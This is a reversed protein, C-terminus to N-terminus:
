STVSQLKEERDIGTGSQYRQDGKEEKKAEEEEEKNNETLNNM